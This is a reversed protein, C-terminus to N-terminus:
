RKTRKPSYNKSFIVQLFVRSNQIYGILHKKKMLIGIVALYQWQTGCQSIRYLM